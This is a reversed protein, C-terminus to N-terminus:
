EINPIPEGPFVLDWDQKITEAAERRLREAKKLSGGAEAVKADELKKQTRHRAFREKVSLIQARIEETLNGRESLANKADELRNLWAKMASANTIHVTACDNIREQYFITEAKNAVVVAKERLREIEETQPTRKGLAEAAHRLTFTEMRGKVQNSQIQNELYEIQRKVSEISPYEGTEDDEFREGALDSEEDGVEDTTSDSAESSMAEMADVAEQGKLELTGGGVFNFTLLQADEDYTAYTIFILNVMTPKGECKVRLVKDMDM